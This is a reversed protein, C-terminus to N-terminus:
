SMHVRWVCSGRPEVIEGKIFINGVAWFWDFQLLKCSIVSPRFFSFDLV